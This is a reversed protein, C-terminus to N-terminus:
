LLGGATGVALGLLHLRQGIREGSPANGTHNLGSARLAVVADLAPNGFWSPDGDDHGGAGCPAADLDAYFGQARQGAVAIVLDDADFVNGSLPPLPFPPEALISVDDDLGILREVPRAVVVYGRSAGAAFIQQKEVIVRLDDFGVPELCQELM